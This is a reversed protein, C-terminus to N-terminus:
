GFVLAMAIATETAETPTAAGVDSATLTKWQTHYDSGSAKAVVQGTTGGAPVGPGPSGASYTLWTTGNCRELVPIDTSFYLFGDYAASATPRNAAPGYGHITPWDLASSAGPMHLHAHNQLLTNLQQAIMCTRDYSRELTEATIKGQSRLDTPQEVPVARTLTLTEGTAPPDDVLVGGDDRVTRISGTAGAGIWTLTYDVDKTLVTEVGDADTLTVVLHTAALLPWTFPFTATAGNGAYVLPAYGAPVTM